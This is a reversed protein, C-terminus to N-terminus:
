TLCLQSYIDMIMSRVQLQKQVRHRGKVEKQLKKGQDKRVRQMAEVFEKHKEAKVAEIRQGLSQEMQQVLARKEVDFKGLLEFEKDKLSMELREEMEYRLGEVKQNYETELEQRISDRELETDMGDQEDSKEVFSQESARGESVMETEEVVLDRESVAALSDPRLIEEQNDEEMGCEGMGGNEINEEKSSNHDSEVTEIERDYSNGSRSRSDVVDAGDPTVEDFASGRYAENKPGM